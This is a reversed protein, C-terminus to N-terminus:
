TTGLCAKNKVATDSVCVTAAGCPWHGDACVSTFM